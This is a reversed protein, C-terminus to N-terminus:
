RGGSIQSDALFQPAVGGRCHGLCAFAGSLALEALAKFDIPVKTEECLSPRVVGGPSDVPNMSGSRYLEGLHPSAM